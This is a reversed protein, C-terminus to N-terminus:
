IVRRALAAKAVVLFGVARIVGAVLAVEVAVATFVAVVAVVAVEVDAVVARGVDAADLVVPM